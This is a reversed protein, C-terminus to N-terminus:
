SFTKRSHGAYGEGTCPKLGNMSNLVMFRM